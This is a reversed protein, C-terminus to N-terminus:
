KIAEPLRVEYDEFRDGKAWKAYENSLVCYSNRFKDILTDYDFVYRTMHHWTFKRQWEQSLHSFPKCKGVVRNLRFKCNDCKIKNEM